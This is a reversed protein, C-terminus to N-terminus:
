QSKRSVAVRGNPNFDNDLWNWNGDWRRDDQNVYPVNRDGNDNVVIHASPWGYDSGKSNTEPSYRM